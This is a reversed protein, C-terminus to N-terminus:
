VEFDPFYKSVDVADTMESANNTPKHDPREHMNKDVNVTGTAGPANNKTKPPPKPIPKEHINTDLVDTIIQVKDATEFDILRMLLEMNTAERSYRPYLDSQCM